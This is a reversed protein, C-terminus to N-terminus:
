QADYSILCVIFALISLIKTRRLNINYEQSSVPCHALNFVMKHEECDMKSTLTKTMMMKTCMEKSIEKIVILGKPKILNKTFIIDKENVAMQHTKGTKCSSFM